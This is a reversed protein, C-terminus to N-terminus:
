LTELRPLDQSDALGVPERRANVVITSILPFTRKKPVHIADGFKMAIFVFM